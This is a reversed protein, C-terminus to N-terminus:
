EQKRFEITGTKSDMKDVIALSYLDVGEARLQDGGGQFGKEIAIGVGEVTAGAQHIIDILGHVACGNAMFDDIILIRDGKKLFRKSVIVHNMKKHTFSYVEATYVDTDMNSGATKKAFIIPVDFYVAAVSAIGIGSSEITLIKDVPKKAFYRHFEKGLEEILPIDIQHNLFSDVKLVNGSTIVANKIIKDELLKM